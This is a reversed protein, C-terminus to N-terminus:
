SELIARAPGASMPVFCYVFNGVESDTLVQGRGKRRMDAARSIPIQEALWEIAEANGRHAQHHARQADKIRLEIREALRPNTDWREPDRMALAVALREGSVCDM